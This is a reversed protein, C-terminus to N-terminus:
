PFFVSLFDVDLNGCQPSFLFSVLGRSGSWTPPCRSSPLVLFKWVTRDRLNLYMHWELISAAASFGPFNRVIVLRVAFVLSYDDVM